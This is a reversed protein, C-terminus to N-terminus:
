NALSIAGSTVKKGLMDVKKDMRVQRHEWEEWESEPRTGDEREQQMKNPYDKRCEDIDDATCVMRQELDLYGGLTPLTDRKAADYYYGCVRGTNLGYGDNYSVNVLVGTMEGGGEDAKFLLKAMKRVLEKHRAAPEVAYGDAAVGGERGDAAAQVASYRALNTRKPMKVGAEPGRKRQVKSVVGGEQVQLQVISRHTKEQKVWQPATTVTAQQEYAREWLM